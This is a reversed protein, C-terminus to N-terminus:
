SEEKQLLLFQVIEDLICKYNKNFSNILHTFFDNDVPLYKGALEIAKVHLIQILLTLGQM